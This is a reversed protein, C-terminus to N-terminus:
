HGGEVRYGQDRLQEALDAESRKADEEVYYIPLSEMLDRRLGTGSRHVVRSYLPGRRNRAGELHERLRVEPDKSTQGVYLWGRGPEDIATEDLQVVYLSWVRQDRNVTYARRKLRTILRRRQRMANSRDGDRYSRTLDTRLRAVHGDLWSPGVGRRLQEFRAARSQVTIGVFLNPRDVRRRPVVDDLEVIIM